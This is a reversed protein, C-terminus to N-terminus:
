RKTNPARVYKTVRLDIGLFEIDNSLSTDSEIIKM